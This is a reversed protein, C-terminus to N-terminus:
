AGRGRLYGTLAVMGFREARTTATAASDTTATPQPASSRMDASLADRGASM